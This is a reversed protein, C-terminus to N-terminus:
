KEMKKTLLMITELYAKQMGSTYDHTRHELHIYEEILAIRCEDDTSQMVRPSIVIVNDDMDALALHDPNVMDGYVVPWKIEIGCRNLIAVQKSVEEEVGIPWPIINYGKKYERKEMIDPIKARCLIRYQMSACWLTKDSDTKSVREENTVEGIYEFGRAKIAKAIFDYFKTATSFYCYEMSEWEAVDSKQVTNLMANIITLNTCEGLVTAIQRMAVHSSVLRSEPLNVEKFSYSFLPISQREQCCWVGRRFYNPVGGTLGANIIAGYQNIFLPAANHPIFYKDWQDLMSAIAENMQIYLLTVGPVGFVDGHVSSVIAREAGGEDLANSWFERVADMVQWKPGTDTTISTAEGDVHIVSFKKGRFDVPKAEIKIEREGAFLRIELNQRLLCALAYKNGSGFFGIAENDDRKDSAGMLTMARPDLEGVNSIRLYQM